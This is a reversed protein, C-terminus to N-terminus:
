WGWKFTSAAILYGMSLYFCTDFTFRDRKSILKAVWVGFNVAICGVFIMPWSVDHVM